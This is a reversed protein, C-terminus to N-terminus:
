TTPSLTEPLTGCTFLVFRVERILRDELDIPDPDGDPHPACDIVLPDLGTWNPQWGFADRIAGADTEARDSVSGPDSPGSDNGIGEFGEGDGAHRTVLYGVRVTVLRTRLDRGDRPNSYGGVPSSPGFVLECRREIASAEVAELPRRDVTFYGEPIKWPSTGATGKLLAEARARHPSQASSM